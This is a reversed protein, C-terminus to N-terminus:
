QRSIDHVYGLPATHSVRRLSRSMLGSLRSSTRALTPPQLAQAAQKAAKMHQTIAAAEAAAVAAAAAEGKLILTSFTASYTPSVSGSSGASPTPSRGAVPTKAGASVQSGPPDSM